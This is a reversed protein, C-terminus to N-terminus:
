PIGRALRQSSGPRGGGSSDIRDAFDGEEVIMMLVIYTAPSVRGTGEFVCQTPCKSSRIEGADWLFDMVQHVPKFNHIAHFPSSEPNPPFAQATKKGDGERQM